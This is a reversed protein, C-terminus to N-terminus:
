GGGKVEDEDIRGFSVRRPLNEVDLKKYMETINPVETLTLQIGQQVKPDLEEISIIQEQSLPYVEQQKMSSSSTIVEVLLHGLPDEDMIKGIWWEGGQLLLKVFQGKYTEYYGSM